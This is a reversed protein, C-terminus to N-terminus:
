RRGRRSGRKKRSSRKPSRKDGHRRMAQPDKAYVTGGHGVWALMGEPRDVHGIKIAGPVM